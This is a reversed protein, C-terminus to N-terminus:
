LTADAFELNIKEVGEAVSVAATIIKKITSYLRYRARIKDGVGYHVGYQRQSTQLAHFEFQDQAKLEELTEKGTTTFSAVSDQNRADTTTEIANWRSERLVLDTAKVALVQRATGEGNGLVFIVNAEETRSRTFVVDAMNGFDPSFTIEASRDVGRQPYFTQFEFELGSDGVRVIEFDTNSPDKSIDQLVDLLNNWARAGTWEPALGADPLVTLGYITCDYIGASKRPAANGSSTCNERVFAKMVDDAPGQKLTFATTAPYLVHRRHLLDNLGRCYATFTEHGNEYLNFQGTRYLVVLEKYWVGMPAPADPKRWVEILSDLLFFELNPDEINLVLQLTNFDNVNKTYSMAIWNTLVARLSGDVPSFIRLQYRAQRVALDM